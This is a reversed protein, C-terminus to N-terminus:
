ARWISLVGRGDLQEYVEYRVERAALRPLLLRPIQPVCFHLTTGPELSATAVLVRELPLPAELESLDILATADPGLITIQFRREGLDDAWARYGEEELLALLPKPRFPAVIIAIGDPSLEGLLALIHELPDEGSALIPRVDLSALRRREASGTGRGDGGPADDPRPEDPAAGEGRLGAVWFDSVACAWPALARTRGDRLWGFLSGQVLAIALRAAVDPDVARSLAGSAHAARVFTAFFSRQMSVLHDLSAQYPRERVDVPEALVLRVLGPYRDANEFLLRVMGKARELPDRTSELLDAAAVALRDRMADVVAEFIADRTSFHRFLAPQSVGVRSAIQRTTLKDLPTDALLELTAQVIQERREYSKGRGVVQAYTIM